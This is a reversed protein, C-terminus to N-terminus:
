WCSQWTTGDFVKLHHDSGDMYIDGESPNAPAENRPELRMVDSIHLPREPEETGIGVYGEGTIRAAEYLASGNYFEFSILGEHSTRLVMGLGHNWWLATQMATGGYSYSAGRHHFSTYSEDGSSLKMYVDSLDDTSNNKLWLFDRDETWNSVGEIQLNSSPYMTRIGVNGEDYYIGATCDNWQSQIIVTDNSGGGNSSGSREAYLAYPVSLLESTGMVTGFVSVRLFYPGIAWNIAEFGAEDLSGVEM